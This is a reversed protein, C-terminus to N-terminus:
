GYRTLVVAGDPAAGRVPVPEDVGIIEDRLVRRGDCTPPRPTLEISTTEPQRALLLECRRRILDHRRRRLDVDLHLHQGTLQKHWKRYTLGVEDVFFGHERCNLALLLATDESTSVDAWGGAALVAAREAFLTAPHMSTRHDHEVWDRYVSGKEVLGPRPADDFDLLTGDALLDRARSTM